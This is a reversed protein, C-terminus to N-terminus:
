QGALQGSRRDLNATDSDIEPLGSLKATVSRAAQSVKVPSIDAFQAGIGTFTFGDLDADGTGDVFIDSGSTNCRVPDGDINLYLRVLHGPSIHRWRRSNRRASECGEDLDFSAGSM